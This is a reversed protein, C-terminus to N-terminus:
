CWTLAAKDVPQQFCTNVVVTKKHFKQLITM